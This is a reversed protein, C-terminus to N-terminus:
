FFRATSINEPSTEHKAIDHFFASDLDNSDAEIIRSSGAGIADSDLYHMTIVKGATDFSVRKLVNKETMIQYDGAPYPTKNGGLVFSNKFTLIKLGVTNTM